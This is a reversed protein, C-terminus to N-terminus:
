PSKPLESQALLLEAERERLLKTIADNLTDGREIIGQYTKALTVWEGHKKDFEEPPLKRVLRGNFKGFSGVPLSGILTEFRELYEKYADAM